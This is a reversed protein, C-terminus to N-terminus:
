VKGYRRERSNYEKIVASLDEASFDPWYVPTFFLESYALQWLLYNSVRQEGGTRIVIDPDPMDATYLNASITQETIDDIRLAGSEVQSALRKFTSTLEGRSGYSLAVCLTFKDNQATDTEIKSMLARIDEDLMYREGIFRIRAGKEQIKKFEDKLYHRLLNMLYAVEEPPRQWNETSFAYVTLYKVGMDAAAESIKQLTQAGQRHGATRPLGKAAAWRGNGDM